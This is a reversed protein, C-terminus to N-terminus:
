ESECSSTFTATTKTATSDTDDEKGASTTVTDEAGASLTQKDKTKNERQYPLGFYNGMLDDWPLSKCLRKRILKKKGNACYKTSEDKRVYKDTITKGGAANEHDISTDCTLYLQQQTPIM